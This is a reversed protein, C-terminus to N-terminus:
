MVNCLVNRARMVEDTSNTLSEEGGTLVVREDLIAVRMGKMKRTFSIFSVNKFLRHFDSIISKKLHACSPASCINLREDDNHNTDDHHVLLSPDGAGLFHPSKGSTGQFSELRNQGSSQQLCICRPAQYIM